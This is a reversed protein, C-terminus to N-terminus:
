KNYFQDLYNKRHMHKKIFKRDSYLRRVFNPQYYEVRDTLGLINFMHILNQKTTYAIFGDTMNPDFLLEPPDSWVMWKEFGLRILNMKTPDDIEVQIYHKRIVKIIYRMDSEERM